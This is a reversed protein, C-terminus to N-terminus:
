GGSEGLSSVPGRRSNRGAKGRVFLIAGLREEVDGIEDASRPGFPGAGSDARDEVKGFTGEGHLQEEVDAGAEQEPVVGLVEGGAIQEGCESVKLITRPAGPREVGSAAEASEEM